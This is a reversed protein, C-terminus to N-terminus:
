HQYVLLGHGSTAGAELALDIVTLPHVNEIVVVRQRTRFGKGCIHEDDAIYGHRLSPHQIRACHKLVENTHHGDLNFLTNAPIQEGGKGILPAPTRVLVVHESFFRPNSEIKERIRSGNDGFLVNFVIHGSLESQLPKTFRLDVLEEKVEGGHVGISYFFDRWVKGSEKGSREPLQPMIKRELGSPFDDPFVPYSYREDYDFLNLSPLAAHESSPFEMRARNLMKAFFEWMGKTAALMMLLVFLGVFLSARGLASRLHAEALLGKGKMKEQTSSARDKRTLAKGEMKGNTGAEDEMMEEGFDFVFNSEGSANKHAGSVSNVHAHTPSGSSRARPGQTPGVSMHVRADSKEAALSPLSPVSHSTGLGSHARRLGEAGQPGTGTAAVVGTQGASGVGNRSASQGM